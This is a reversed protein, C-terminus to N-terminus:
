NDGAKSAMIQQTAWAGVLNALSLAAEPKFRCAILACLVAACAHDHQQGALIELEMLKTTLEDM